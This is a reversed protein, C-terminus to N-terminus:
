SKTLVLLEIKALDMIKKQIYYIRDLGSQISEVYVRLPNSEPIENSLLKAYRQTGNLVNALDHVMSLLEMEDSSFEKVDQMANHISKLM